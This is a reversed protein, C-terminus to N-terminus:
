ASAEATLKEEVEAKAEVTANGAPIDKSTQETADNADAPEASPKAEETQATSAAKEDGNEAEGAHVGNTTPQETTPSEKSTPAASPPQETGLLTNWKSLLEHSRHRFQFEEDKPISDLKILAKLVKNIKTTRIISVELDGYEELKKIFNSMAPMENEQPMQDRTLFGKQLKHRLFLVEKEKKQLAQEPTLKEEAKGEGDEDSAAAKSKKTPQKAKTAKEKSKKTSDTSAPAKPTTLKLKTGTKPTKAPKESEIDSDANKRKKSGKAKPTAGDGDADEMEVDETATSKRKKKKEERAAKEAEKAEKRELDEQMAKQHDSLMDKFHQLEHGESAVKYAALLAKTKGKEGKEAVERCHDPDLPSLETNPIWAFENTHLFMIPFTREWARKGGDGYAERYTGDQQRTTVPRTSLLSTPLMEEDCIVSPWPPYSKLRAFYYEGPEADLHTVKQASKKKNLKKNKHEPVGSTSKRKGNAQKKTSAPTGNVEAAPVESRTAAGNNEVADTMETDQPEPEPAPSAKNGIQGNIKDVEKSTEAVTDAKTDPAQLGGSMAPEEEAMSSPVDPQHAAVSSLASVSDKSPETSSDAM